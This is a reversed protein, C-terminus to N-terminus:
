PKTNRFEAMAINTGSGCEKNCDMYVNSFTVIAGDRTMTVLTTVTVITMKTIVAGV